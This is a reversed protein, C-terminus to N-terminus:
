PLDGNSLKVIYDAHYLIAEAAAENGNESAEKALKRAACRLDNRARKYAREPDRNKRAHEM